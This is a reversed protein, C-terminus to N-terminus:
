KGGLTRQDPCLASVRAGRGSGAARYTVSKEEERGDYSGVFFCRVCCGGGLCQHFLVYRKSFIQFYKFINKKSIINDSLHPSVHIGQAGPRSNVGPKGSTLSSRTATIQLTNGADQRPVMRPVRVFFQESTINTNSCIRAISCNNQLVGRVSVRAAAKQAMQRWMRWSIIVLCVQLRHQVFNSMWISISLFPMCKWVKPIQVPM